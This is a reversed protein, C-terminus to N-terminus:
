TIHNFYIFILLSSEFITSRFNRWKICPGFGEGRGLGLSLHIWLAEADASSGVEGRVRSVAVAM